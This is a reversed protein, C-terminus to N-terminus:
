LTFIIHKFKFICNFFTHLQAFYFNLRKIRQNIQLFSNQLKFLFTKQAANLLFHFKCKFVCMLLLYYYNTYTYQFVLVFIHQRFDCHRLQLAEHFIKVARPSSLDREYEYM